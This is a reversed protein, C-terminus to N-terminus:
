SGDGLWSKFDASRETSVITEHKTAPNLKILVRSKSYSLMETISQISIIFQRNIRFFQEVVTRGPYLIEEKDLYCGTLLIILLSSGFLVTFINQRTPLFMYKM